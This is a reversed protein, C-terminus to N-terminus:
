ELKIRPDVLRYTLDTILTSILVMITIISFLGMLTPYDRAFLATYMLRGLGPWGFVTETVVAGAFTFGIGLGIQTIAPISANRLAHKLIISKESLGKARALTIYDEEFVERMKARTLRSIVAVNVLGLSVVPLVLHSLVDVVQDFGTLNQRLSSMGSAPLWGLWVSFILILLMGVVFSPLSYGTLSVTSTVFDSISNPKRASIIGLILGVITSFVLSSIVLLLTAPIRQAIIDLVPARFYISYGLNGTIINKWFVALQVFIPQDLAYQKILSERMAPPMEFDGALYLLPDGPASHILIFIIFTAIFFTPIMQLVRKFIYVKLSVTEPM